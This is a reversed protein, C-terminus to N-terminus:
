ISIQYQFLQPKLQVMQSPEKIPELANRVQQIHELSDNVATLFQEFFSRLEKAAAKEDESIEM